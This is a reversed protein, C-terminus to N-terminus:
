ALGHYKKLPNMNIVHARRDYPKCCCVAIQTALDTSIFGRERENIANDYREDLLEIFRPKEVLYWFRKSRTEYWNKFRAVKINDNVIHIIGFLTKSESPSTKLYNFWMHLASEIHVNGGPFPKGYRQVMGTDNQSYIITHEEDKGGKWKKSDIIFIHNGILLIHDTDGEEPLGTEEDIEEKGAGKIHVSDFLVANPKDKMWEMIMTSTEEEGSKAIDVVDHKWGKPMKGQRIPDDLQTLSAAPRGFHRRGKNLQEKILEFKRPSIDTILEPHPPNIIIDNM